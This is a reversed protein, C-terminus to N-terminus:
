FEESVFSLSPPPQTINTRINAHKPCGPSATSFFFWRTSSMGEITEYAVQKFFVECLFRGHGLQKRTQLLFFVHSAQKFCGESNGNLFKQQVSGPNAVEQCPIGFISFDGFHFEPNWRPVKKGPPIAIWVFLILKMPHDCLESCGWTMLKKAIRRDVVISVLILKLWNWLTNEHAVTRNEQHGYRPRASPM